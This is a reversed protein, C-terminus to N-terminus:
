LRYNYHCVFTFYNCLKSVLGQCASKLLIDAELSTKVPFRQTCSIRGVHYVVSCVIVTEASIYTCGQTTGLRPSRTVNPLPYQTIGLAM